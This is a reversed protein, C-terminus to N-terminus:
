WLYIVPPRIQLWPIECNANFSEFSVARVVVRGDPGGQLCAARLRCVVAASPTLQRRLFQSTSARRECVGLQLIELALKATLLVEAYCVPGIDGVTEAERFCLDLRPILVAPLRAITRYKWWYTTLAARRGASAIFGRQRWYIDPVPKVLGAASRDSVAALVIASSPWDPWNGVLVRKLRRVSSRVFLLVDCDRLM